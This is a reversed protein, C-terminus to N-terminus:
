ESGRLNQHCQFREYADAPSVAASGTLSAGGIMNLTRRAEFEYARGAVFEPSDDFGSTYLVCPAIALESASPGLGLMERVRNKGSELHDKARSFSSSARFDAETGRWKEEVAMELALFSCMFDNCATWQPQAKAQLPAAILSLLIALHRVKM